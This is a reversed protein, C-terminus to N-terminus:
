QVRSSRSWSVEYDAEGARGFEIDGAKDLAKLGAEQLNDAEVRIIKSVSETRTVEVDFFQPM